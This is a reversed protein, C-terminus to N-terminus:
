SRGLWAEDDETLSDPPEREPPSLIDAYPEADVGVLWWTTLLLEAKDTTSANSRATSPRPKAQLTQRM